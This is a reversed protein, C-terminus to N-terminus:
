VNSNANSNSDTSTSVRQGRILRKVSQLERDLKLIDVTRAEGKVKMCGTVFESASVSGSNDTDLVDFMEIADDVTIDLHSLYAQFVEDELQKEFEKASIEGSGDDDFTKFIHCFSKTLKEKERLRSRIADEKSNRATVIAQECCLGTIVNLVTFVVLCIYGLLTFALLHDNEELPEYVDNWTLGGTVVQFLTLMSRGLSGFFKSLKQRQGPDAVSKCGETFTVAFTFMVLLLSLVAWLLLRVAGLITYVMMRLSSSAKVVRIIRVIRVVRVMRSNFVVEDGQLVSLVLELYSTFVCGVDFVNWEWDLGTLFMRGRAIIRVGLEFTFFSLFLYQAVEFLVKNNPNSLEIDLGVLACSGLIMLASMNDFSQHAVLRGCINDQYTVAEGILSRRVQAQALSISAMKAFSDESEQDSEKKDSLENGNNTSVQEFSPAADICVMTPKLDKDEIESAQVQGEGGMTMHGGERAIPQGLQDEDFSPEKVMENDGIPQSPQENVMDHTFSQIDQQLLCRLWIDELQQRHREVCLQLEQMPRIAPLEM